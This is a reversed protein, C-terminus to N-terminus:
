RISRLSTMNIEFIEIEFRKKNNLYKKKQEGNQLLLLLYPEVVICDFAGVILTNTDM